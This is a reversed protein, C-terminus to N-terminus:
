GDVRVALLTRGAAPAGPVCPHTLLATAADVDAQPLLGGRPPSGSDAAGLVVMWEPALSMCSSIPTSLRDPTVLLPLPRGAGAVDPPLGDGAQGLLALSDIRGVGRTRLATNIRTLLGNPEHGDTMALDTVLCRMEARVFEVDAGYGFGGAAPPGGFMTPRRPPAPAAVAGVALLTRTGSIPAALVFGDSGCQSATQWEPMTRVTKAADLGM